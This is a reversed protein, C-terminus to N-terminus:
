EEDSDMPDAGTAEANSAADVAAARTEAAGKSDLDAKAKELAKLSKDVRKKANKEALALSEDDPSEEAQKKAEEWAATKEEHAVTASRHVFTEQGVAVNERAIGLAAEYHPSLAPHKLADAMADVLDAKQGSQKISEKDIAVLGELVAKAEASMKNWQANIVSMAGGAGGHWLKVDRLGPGIASQLLNLATRPRPPAPDANPDKTKKGKSKGKTTFEDTEVTIPEPISTSSSAHKHMLANESNMAALQKMAYALQDRKSEYLQKYLDLQSQHDDM